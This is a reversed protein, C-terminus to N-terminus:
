LNNAIWTVSLINTVSGYAVSMQGTNAHFRYFFRRFRREFSFVSADTVSSKSHIPQFIDLVVTRDLNIRRSRSAGAGSAVRAM